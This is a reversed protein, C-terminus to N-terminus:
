ASFSPQPMLRVRDPFVQDRPRAQRGAPSTANRPQRLVRQRRRIPASLAPLPGPQGSRARDAAACRRAPRNSSSISAVKTGDRKLYSALNYVLGDDGILVVDLNQGGGAEVSGSLVDGSKMNFAGIQLRPSRDIGVGLQRLFDVMPCQAETMPVASPDTGRLGPPKFAGDFAVFPASNSGFGELTPRATPSRWRGSSSAPAAMMTASM